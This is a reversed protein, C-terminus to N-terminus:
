DAESPFQFIFIVKMFLVAQILAILGRDSIKRGFSVIEIKRAQDCGMNGTKLHFNAYGLFGTNGALYRLYYASIAAMIAVILAIAVLYGPGEPM